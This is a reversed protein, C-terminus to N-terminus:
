LEDKTNDKQILGAKKVTIPTQPKNSFGTRTNEIERVVEMGQVVEGFVVHKGNLWPTPVTTVFFQSGTTNKGRNAMSLLGPRDHIIDFNEDNFKPGYISYGGTGNGNEFDGSQIMFDKIVRHFSVGEYSPGKDGICLHKFNDATKPTVSGYLGFVIRGLSNGGQDVDFFVKDTIDRALAVALIAFLALTLVQFKM